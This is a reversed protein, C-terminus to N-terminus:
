MSFLALIQMLLKFSISFVGSGRSCWLQGCCWSGSSIHAPTNTGRQRWCAFVNRQSCFSTLPGNHNAQLIYVPGLRCVASNTLFWSKKLASGLAAPTSCCGGLDTSVAGLEPDQLLVTRTATSSWMLTTTVAKSKNPNLWTATCAATWLFPKRLNPPPKSIQLCPSSFQPSFPMQSNNFYGKRWVSFTLAVLRDESSHQNQMMKPLTFAVNSLVASCLFELARCM